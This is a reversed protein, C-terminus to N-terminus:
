RIDGTPGKPLTTTKRSSHYFTQCVCLLPCSKPLHRYWRAWSKSIRLQFALALPFSTRLTSTPTTTIRSLSSFSPSTTTKSHKNNSPGWHYYCFRRFVWNRKKERMQFGLRQKKSFAFLMTQEWSLLCHIQDPWPSVRLDLSDLAKSTSM